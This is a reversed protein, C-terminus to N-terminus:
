YKLKCLADHIVATVCEISCFDTGTVDVRHGSTGNIPLPSFAVPQVFKIGTKDLKKGCCDCHYYSKLM